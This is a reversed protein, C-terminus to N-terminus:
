KEEKQTALKIGNITLALLLVAGTVIVHMAEPAGMFNLCMKVFQVLIAGVLAGILNAKGGALSTGGLVVATIADCELGVGANPSASQVTATYLIAGLAAAFSTIMYTVILINDANIGSTRAAAQNSGVARVMVGFKTSRYVVIAIAFVAAVIWLKIPIGIFSGRGIVGLTGYLETKIFTGINNTYVQTMSDFILQTGLTAVFPVIKLKTILLGNILSLILAAVITMLIAPFTSLPGTLGGPLGYVMFRALMSGCLSFMSGAALDFGGTCIAFAMGASMVAIWSSRTLVSILQAGQLVRIDICAFIAAVVVFIVFVGFQDWFMWFKKANLKTKMKTVEWVM